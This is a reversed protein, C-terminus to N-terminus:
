GQQLLTFCFWAPSPTGKYIFQQSHISLKNAVLNNIVSNIEGVLPSTKGQTLLISRTVGRDASCCHCLPRVM